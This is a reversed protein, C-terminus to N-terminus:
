KEGQPFLSSIPADTALRVAINLVGLAPVSYKMPVVGSSLVATATGLLNVWFTKSGLLSKGPNM